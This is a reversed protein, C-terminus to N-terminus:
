LNISVLLILHSKIPLIEEIYNSIHIHRFIEAENKFIISCIDSLGPKVTELYTFYQPHNKVVKFIEPRPGIFEMDGKIINLLQPLEDLKFRRLLKGIKTIRDDNFETIDPGNNIYMTRFKYLDFNNYYFGCRNHKFFVPAGSFFLIALIIVLLLPLLVILLILAFVRNLM